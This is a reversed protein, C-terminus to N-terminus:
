WTTAFSVADALTGSAGVRMSYRDDACAGYANDMNHQFTELKAISADLLDAARVPKAFASGLTRPQQSGREVLLYEARARSAFSAQKGGPSVTALAEILAAIAAKAIGDNGELNAVLLKTDICVYLYFLGSGFGLEGIFGAGADEAKTKLDDVATYFDDEVATQHTTFAHAVQVAAERNFDPNDALMRGFMAIDAATDVKSLVADPQPDIEEDSLAKNALAFAAEREKPSIFALQRIYSPHDSKEDEIKGFVEAIKRATALADKEGMDKKILYEHIETGLRQTRQALHGDLKVRFADSTRVARKLSQSSIRLREAGGIVATKPRGTDDRNLNAPPYFTLLHLQVFHAM